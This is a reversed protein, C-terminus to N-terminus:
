WTNGKLDLIMGCTTCHGHYELIIDDEQDKIWQHLELDEFDGCCPCQVQCIEKISAQVSGRLKDM